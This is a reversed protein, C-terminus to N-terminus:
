LLARLSLLQVTASVTQEQSSRSSRLAGIELSEVLLIPRFRAIATLAEDLGSLDGEVTLRISIHDFNDKERVPLVQSNSVSLGANSLIERVSTQLEASVTARDRSAPYVLEAVEQMGQASSDRLQSEFGIMGRLRAIRPNLSDIESQYTSRMEVLGLLANTYFLLPVLLTLGCIWAVRRHSRLWSM